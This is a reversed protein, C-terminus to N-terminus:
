LGRLFTILCLYEKSTNVIIIEENLKAKKITLTTRLITNPVYLNKQNKKSRSNRIQEKVFRSSRSQYDRM